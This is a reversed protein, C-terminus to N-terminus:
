EGLVKEVLFTNGKRYGQFTHTKSMIKKPDLNKAENRNVSSLDESVKESLTKFRMTKTGDSILGSIKFVGKPFNGCKECMNEESIKNCRQCFYVVTSYIQPIFIEVLAGENEELQSLFKRKIM